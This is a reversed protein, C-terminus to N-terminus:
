KEKWDESWLLLENPCDSALPYESKTMQWSLTLTHLRMLPLIMWQHWSNGNMKQSTKSESVLNLSACLLSLLIFFLKYLCNWLNLISVLIRYLMRLNKDFILCTMSQLGDSHEYELPDINLHFLSFCISVWMYISCSSCM